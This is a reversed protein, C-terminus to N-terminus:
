APQGAAQRRAPANERLRRDQDQGPRDKRRGSLAPDSAARRESLRQNYDAPGRADTHGALLFRFGSLNPDKLAESLTALQREGARTPRDSDYEFEITLNIKPLDKNQDIVEAEKGPIIEIARTRLSRTLGQAPKLGKVIDDKSMQAQAEPASTVAVLVLAATLVLIRLM